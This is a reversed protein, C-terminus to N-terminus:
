VGGAMVQAQQWGLVGTIPFRWNRCKNQLKKLESPLMEGILRHFPNAVTEKLIAQGIKKNILGTFFAEMPLKKLYKQRQDLM